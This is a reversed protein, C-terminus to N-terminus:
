DGLEAFRVGAYGKSQHMVWIGRGLLAEDGMGL